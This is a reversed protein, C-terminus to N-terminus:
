VESPIFLIDFPLMIVTVQAFVVNAADYPPDTFTSIETAPWLRRAFETGSADTRIETVTDALPKEAVSILGALEAGDIILQKKESLDNKQM